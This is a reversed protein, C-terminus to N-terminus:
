VEVIELTEIIEPKSYNLIEKCKGAIGIADLELMRLLESQTGHQVFKDPIGMIYIDKKFGFSNALELVASGFGGITTGDEVTIIKDFKEFIECLLEKDLPKIFRGNVVCASISLDELIEAAGLAADVMKGIAVIAVDYGDRLIEGKGLPISKMERLELGQTSGRPFRMAFPGSNYDYVASYLLDRLECEDKPAAVVMNTILRMYAMDLVGHHTPGDEGVIGARDLAFIVHLKQLACDHIMNDYARQLFTSYIAVVPIIGQSALGAAFTVAHSEAIGVDFVRTPFSKNVIDMGTGDTMAATIGVVKNNRRCLETLAEGFVTSYSPAKKEEPNSKISLGTIKDIKGIAHLRLSDREAPAYGKGKQTIVHLFVPGKLDKVLRMMKILKHINHGNIPGFYKFGFAEFLMGPTIIGKVGTEIGSAMKRLRDGFHDMKGTLDWLNERIRQLPPSAFLENFYNSLASVNRAISINNDNLVVTIDRNQVGCNNMGEFAMGGTMAGDGIFAIVRHHENKLDRAAAMGLAASISTSAHGAGFADYESESRKLFGSLGGFQRITRLQDRRGTLIKHPYGQHGVDMVLKDNPTNYVYHLAVTLEVAGLGAGFHGGITTITDVIFERVEECVKNLSEIPLRRLDAPSNIRNLYNYKSTELAM